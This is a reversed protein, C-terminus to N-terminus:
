SCVSHRFRECCSFGTFPLVFPVSGVSSFSGADEIVRAGGSGLDFHRCASEVFSVRLMEGNLLLRLMSKGTEQAFLGAICLTAAEDRTDTPLRLRCFMDRRSVSREAM